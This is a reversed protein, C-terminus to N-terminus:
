VRNSSDSTPAVENATANGEGNFLEGILKLQTLADMGTARTLRKSLKTAENTKGAKVANHIDRMYNNLM